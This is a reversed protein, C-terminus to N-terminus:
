AFINFVDRSSLLHVLEMSLKEKAGEERFVEFKKECSLLVKSQM